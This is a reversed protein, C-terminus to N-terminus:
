PQAPAPRTLYIDDVYISGFAGKKPNARDGVGIFMKQIAKLNVGADAFDKLPINWEAWKEARLIDPSPYPVVATHNSSDRLAVYLGDAAGSLQPVAVLATGWDRPTQWDDAITSHWAVQSDRDTGDDDDNYFCDIGIFKGVPAGAGRLTQWPMKVEIRWGTPTNEQAFVIGTIDTNTGQIDTTTWGLTYQRNHGSLPSPAKTNDGDIYLEVSDDQWSEATDNILKEDNIDVLAYLNEADYLVRFQGSADALDSPANAQLSTRLQQASAQAWVEDPKGDIVPPTAVRVIDFDRAQGRVYLTLTDVGNLTWDQSTTWTREAESYFPKDVNNYDMPMSQLGGHMIVTEAITTYPTGLTWIDHGVSAGSGNGLNGPVPETYGFGDVWAQFVRQGVENTYSEFDDIPLVTTFSWLLGPVITDDVLIEDVRWFYTTAPLLEAPAFNPETVIGKDAVANGDVVAAKNDSIYVHHKEANQGPVWKLTLKLPAKNSADPPDPLYATLAQITFSWVDGTIVTVMDRETGDIRWYYTTGPVGTAYMYFSKNTPVKSAVMNAPGLEPSTGLYVTQLLTTSGPKWQLVAYLVDVAGDAPATITAKKQGWSVGCVGLVILLFVFYQARKHM